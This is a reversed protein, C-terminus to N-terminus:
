FAGALYAFGLAAAISAGNGIQTAVTAWSKAAQVKGVCATVDEDGAGRVSALAISDVYARDFLKMRSELETWYRAALRRSRLLGSAIPLVHYKAAASTQITM